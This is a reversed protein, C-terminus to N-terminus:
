LTTKNGMAMTTSTSRLAMGECFWTLEFDIPSGLERQEVLAHGVSHIMRNPHIVGTDNQFVMVPNGDNRATEDEIGVTGKVKAAGTFRCIFGYHKAIGRGVNVFGFHLRPVPFAQTIPEFWLHMKLSPHPRRGFMDELDFHELRHFEETSRKYYERGALMARHPTKDSAPILCRVYGVDKGVASPVVDIAVDDVVPDTSNLLSKALARVFATVGSIPKLEAATDNEDTKVGFILIGGDSNAFGSLAQSFNRKDDKDLGGHRASQKENFEIHLDEKTDLLQQLDAETGLSRYYEVLQQNAM